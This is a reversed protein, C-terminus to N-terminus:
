FPDHFEAFELRSVLHDFFALVEAQLLSYKLVGNNATDNKIAEKESHHLFQNLPAEFLILSCLEEVYCLAVQAGSPSTGLVRFVQKALAHVLGENAQSGKM